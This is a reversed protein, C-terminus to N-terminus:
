EECIDVRGQSDMGMIQDQRLSRIFEVAEDTIIEGPCVLPIGPPYPTIFDASIKGAAEVIRIKNRKEVEWLEMAKKGYPPYSVSEPICKPRTFINCNEDAISKLAELLRKGDEMETGMGAMALISRADDFEVEIHHNKTLLSGLNKLGGTSLWIKSKDWGFVEPEIHDRIMEFPSSKLSSRLEDYMMQIQNLKEKGHMKMWNISSAVSLIIPYSPSSTQLMSLHKRIRKESVRRSNIHVVAGQNLSPLTKHTSHVVIDSLVDVASIPYSGSFKLHAGHAEDVILIVDHKQCIDSLRTLDDCTGYYTPYTVVMGKIDKICGLREDLKDLNLGIPFGFIGDFSPDFYEPNLRGYYLASYVSKHANRPILIKDGPDFAGMISAMIGCTSGNITILSKEVGYTKAIDEELVLIESRPDNLNDTGWIETTDYREWGLRSFSKGKHGPMHFKVYNEKEEINKMLQNKM